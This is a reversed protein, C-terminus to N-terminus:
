AVARAAITVPYRADFRDLKRKPIEQVAAGHLFATASLLNGYCKTEIKSPDFSVQLLRQLAEETLSWYWHYGEGPQVPTIGPVTVLLVGGPKLARRLNAIAAAMDFVLHLTQTLIICDFKRTPLTAPDSIDGVLTAKPNSLDLNLVESAEVDSGGFRVTYDDEQVELVCGRVDRAHQSLFHEIYYRDIPTGRDYGWHNSIPAASSIRGFNMVALGHIRRVGRGLVKVPRPLSSAM